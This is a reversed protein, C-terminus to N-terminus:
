GVWEWVRLDSTSASVAWVDGRWADMQGSFNFSGNASIPIGNSSTVGSDMGFYAIGAGNNVIIMGKRAPNSVIVLTASGGVSVASYSSIPDLAM